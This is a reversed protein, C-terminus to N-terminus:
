LKKNQSVRYTIEQSSLRNILDFVIARRMQQYLAAAQNSGSLIEGSSIPLTRAETLTEPASLLAGSPDTIQFTVNLTLNYQRTQQTNSIGILQQGTSESLIQLITTAEAPSDALHIGSMKFYQQINHTLESYPLATKLYIHQLPPALQAEGRPHFGCSALLLIFITQFSISIWKAYTHQM